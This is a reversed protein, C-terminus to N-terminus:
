DAGELEERIASYRDSPVRSWCHDMFGDMDKQRVGALEKAEEWECQLAIRERQAARLADRADVVAWDAERVDRYHARLREIWAEKAEQWEAESADLMWPPRQPEPRKAQRDRALQADVVNSEAQREATRAEELEEAAEVVRASARDLSGRYIRIYNPLMSVHVSAFEMGMSDHTQWRQIPVHSRMAMPAPAPAPAPKDPEVRKRKLAAAQARVARVTPFPLEVVQQRIAAEEADAAAFAQAREEESTFKKKGARTRPAALEKKLGAALKGAKRGVALADEKSMFCGLVMDGLLWGLGVLQDFNGFSQSLQTGHAECLARIVKAGREVADKTARPLAAPRGSAVPAAAGVVFMLDSREQFESATLQPQPEESAERVEGSEDASCGSSPTTPEDHGNLTEGICAWTANQQSSEDEGAAEAANGPSASDASRTSDLDGYDAEFTAPRPPSTSLIAGQEFTAVELLHDDGPAARGVQNWALACSVQEM